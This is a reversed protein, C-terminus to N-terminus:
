DEEPFGSPIRGDESWPKWEAQKGAFWCFLCLAAILTKLM